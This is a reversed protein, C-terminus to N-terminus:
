RPVIQNSSLDFCDLKYMTRLDLIALTDYENKVCAHVYILHVLNYLSKSGKTETKLHSFHPQLSARLKQM